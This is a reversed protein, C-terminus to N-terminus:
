EQAWETEVSAVVAAVSSYIDVQMENVVEPTELSVILAYRAKRERLDHGKRESWWGKAPYVAVLNKAALDRATGQWIDSHISGRHRTDPGVTWQDADSSTEAKEGEARARKNIRKLFQKEGESATCLEFRLGHSAYRYRGKWGRSGPNPEVFYSLTVRLEVNTEELQELVETPWPLKHLHLEQTKGDVSFPQIEQEVVLTLLNRQSYRARELDPVGMGYCALQRKVRAKGSFDSFSNTMAPTWRAAHIMLGRLTEPLLQPYEAQLQAAFHSALATAASTEYMSGLLPTFGPPGTRRRTSLHVFEDPVIKDGAPSILLNGGEFVVDPQHPWKEESSTVATCSFPSLDGAAAAASHGPYTSLNGQFQTFAGVTVANWAQAPEEIPCLQHNWEPYSYNEHGWNANGASVFVLRSVGGGEEAGSCIQDIAASWSTPEGTPCPQATVALCFNRPGRDTSEALAVCAKSIEGYLEPENQARPPPLIKVSELVVSIPVALNSALHQALLDGYVILGGMLTGHGHHDHTGWSPNYALMGQQDIAQDLIPHHPDLGTDLLCVRARQDQCEIREALEAGWERQEQVTLSLFDRVLSPPRLEAVSDGLRILQEMAQVTAHTLVVEREPFTLTQQLVPLNLRQAQNRLRTAGIEKNIWVEWYYTQKGNPLADAPGTWFDALTPMQMSSICAVLAEHKPRGKPTQQNPDGYQDLKRTITTVKEIPVRVIAHGAGHSDLQILSLSIGAKADELSEPKFGRNADIKFNIPNADAVLQLRDREKQTQQHAIDLQELQHKLTTAHTVPDRPPLRKDSGGGSGPYAYAHSSTRDSIFFHPLKAGM